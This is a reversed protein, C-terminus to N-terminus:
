DIGLWTGKEKFALIIEIETGKYKVTVSEDWHTKSNDSRCYKM